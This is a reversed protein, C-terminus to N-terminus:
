LLALIEEDHGKPSVKQFVKLIKGQEDIVFTTRLIGMYKNGMFVKKGWVGYAKILEKKPDSLLTFNLKEKAEFKKHNAVSDASVGLVVAGEKAIDAKRDRFQCAEVTCGTTMDKPYFYLVVKKGRYQKLSHLKGNQDQAEFAPAPDGEKPMAM